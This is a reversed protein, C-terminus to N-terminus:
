PLRLSLVVRVHEGPPDIPLAPRPQDRVCAGVSTRFADRRESIGLMAIGGDPGFTVDYDLVIAEPEGAAPPTWCLQSLGPRLADLAAQAQRQVRGPDPPPTPAEAPPVSRPVAISPASTPPPAVAAPPQAGARLGLYICIGIISSGAVIALPLMSNREAAM